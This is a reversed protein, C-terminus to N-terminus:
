ACNCQATQGQNQQWTQSHRHQGGQDADMRCPREQVIRDSAIAPAFAFSAMTRMGGLSFTFKDRTTNSQNLM